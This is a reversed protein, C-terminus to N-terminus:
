HISRGEVYLMLFGGIAPTCGLLLMVLLDMAVETPRLRVGPGRVQGDSQLGTLAPAFLDGDPKGKLRQILVDLGGAIMHRDDGHV